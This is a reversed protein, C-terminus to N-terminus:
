WEGHGDVDDVEANDGFVTTLAEDGIAMVTVLKLFIVLYPPSPASAIIPKKM